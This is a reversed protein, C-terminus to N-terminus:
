PREDIPNCGRFKKDLKDDTPDSITHKFKIPSSHEQVSYKKILSM